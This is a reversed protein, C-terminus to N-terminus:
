WLSANASRRTLGGIGASRWRCSSKAGAAMLAHHLAVVDSAEIQLHMGRGFPAELPGALFLRSADVTQELMLEAGERELLAFRDEPRAYRVSFGLVRVYFDLSGIFDASYLEPVLKPRSM